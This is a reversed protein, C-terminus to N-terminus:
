VISRIPTAVRCSSYYISVGGGKKSVRICHEHNYGPINLIDEKTKTTWTESLGIFAISIDLGELYYLCDKFKKGSSCINSHIFAINEKSGYKTKLDFSTEFNQCYIKSLNSSINLDPDIQFLNTMITGLYPTSHAISYKTRIIDLLDNDQVNTFPLGNM